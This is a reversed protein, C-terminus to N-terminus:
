RDPPFPERSKQWLRGLVLPVALLVVAILLWAPLFLLGVAATSSESTFVGIQAAIAFGGLVVLVVAGLRLDIAPLLLALVVFPLSEWVALLVATALAGTFGLWLFPLLAVVAGVALAAWFLHRRENRM